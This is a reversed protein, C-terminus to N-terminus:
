LGRLAELKLQERWDAAAATTVRVRVLVTAGNTADGTGITAADANWDGDQDLVTVGAPMQKTVLEWNVNGRVTYTALYETYGTGRFTETLPQTEAANLYVPITLRATTRVTARGGGIAAAATQATLPAATFLAAALILTLTRM